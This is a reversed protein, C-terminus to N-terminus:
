RPLTSLRAAPIYAPSLPAISSVPVTAIGVSEGMVNFIELIAGQEGGSPHDVFEVVTAIDGQRLGEDPLDRTIIVRTYLAPM